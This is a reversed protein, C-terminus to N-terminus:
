WQPSSTLDVNGGSVSFRPADSANTGHRYVAKKWASTDEWGRAHEAAPGWAGGSPGGPFTALPDLPEQLAPDEASHPLFCEAFVAPEIGTDRALKRAEQLIQKANNGIDLRESRMTHLKVRELELAYLMHGGM